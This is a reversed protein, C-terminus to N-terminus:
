AHQKHTGRREQAPAARYGSCGAGRQLRPAIRPCNVHGKSGRIGSESRSAMHLEVKQGRVVSM